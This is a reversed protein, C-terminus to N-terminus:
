WWVGLFAGRAHPEAEMLDFRHEEGCICPATRFWGVRAESPHWTFNPIRTEEAYQPDFPEIADTTMAWRMTALAVDDLDTEGYLCVLPGSDSIPWIRRIGTTPVSM